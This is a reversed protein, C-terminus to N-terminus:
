KGRVPIIGTQRIGGDDAVFDADTFDEQLDIIRTPNAFTYKKAEVSLLYTQGVQLESFKYYGFSGTTTQYVTGSQTTVSVRVGRIGGGAATTIRGGISVNAATPPLLSIAFPSLSTLGNTCLNPYTNGGATRNQWVGSELHYIRLNIFQAPTYSSVNVCVTPNTYVASTSIDYNLGTNIGM